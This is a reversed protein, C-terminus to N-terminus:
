RMKTHPRIHNKITSIIERFKNLLNKLQQWMWQNSWCNRGERMSQLKWPRVRPCTTMHVLYTTTHFSASEELISRITSSQNTWPQITTTKQMVQDRTWSLWALGKSSKTKIGTCHIHLQWYGSALMEKLKSTLPRAQMNCRIPHQNSAWTTSARIAALVTARKATKSGKNLMRTCAQSM